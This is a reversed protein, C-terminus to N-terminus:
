LLTRLNALKLLLLKLLLLYLLCLLLNTGRTLRLIYLLPPCSIELLRRMMM